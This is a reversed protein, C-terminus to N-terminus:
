WGLFESRIILAANLNEAEFHHIKKANKTQSDHFDKDESEDRTGLLTYTYEKENFWIEFIM